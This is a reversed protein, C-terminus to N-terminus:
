EGTVFYVCACVCVCAVMWVCVCVLMCVCASVWVGVGEWVCASLSVSNAYSGGDVLLLGEAPAKPFRVVWNPHFAAALAWAPLAGAAAAVAAGVMYRIQNLLFSGARLRVV